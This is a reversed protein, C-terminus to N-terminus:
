IKIGKCTSNNYSSNHSCSIGSYDNIEEVSSGKESNKPTIAKETQPGQKRDSRLLRVTIPITDEPTWM